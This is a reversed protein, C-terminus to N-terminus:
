LHFIYALGIGLTKRGLKLCPYWVSDHPSTMGMGDCSLFVVNVFVSALLMIIDM